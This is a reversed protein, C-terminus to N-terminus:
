KKWPTDAIHESHNAARALTFFFDSLRNLYQLIEPLVMTHAALEVVAREARRCVTRCVHLQSAVVSGGPLIFTKLEPLQATLIDIDNELRTVASTPFVPLSNPITNEAYPTSVHSGIVFLENQIPELLADMHLGTNYTHELARVLGIHSNLEDITGFAHLRIDSKAVRKGGYLGTEGADGTKTYIKM